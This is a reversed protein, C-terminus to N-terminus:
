PKGIFDPNIAKRDEKYKWRFASPMPSDATM